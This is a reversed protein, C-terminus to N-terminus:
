LNANVANIAQQNLELGTRTQVDNIFYQFLDQSQASAAQEVLAAGLASVDQDNTDPPNVADLRVILAGDPIPLVQAEGPQMEFVAQLFQPTTGPVFSGRTIDREETVTLGLAALDAEPTIQPLLAEARATLRESLNQARWADEAADRVADLPQLEPAVVADLRMAVIGGDDLAFIEPFDEITVRGAEQQFAAYGAAADSADPTWDVQELRVETEQAVEELTAGGALLDDIGDRMDDIMRRARDGALEERLDDRADEFSTTRAALVGNVRFLAPGLDSPFPGVVDGTEAGFVAGGAEGLDSERVDGLDIDSLELGREAVIDELTKDGSEIAVKANEAATDDAFALREVLRREPQNFEEARAEYLEKLAAEDVDVQDLIMEPTLWAYTIRKREPLTFLDANEAHFATLEDEDPATMPAALDAETLKAWTFDRREALFAVMIDAYTQSSPVGSLVAAQLLGRALEGRLENEFDSESQGSRDLYFTYAERDFGGDLGQFAQIQLLQDRLNEDGVSVGLAAAEADLAKFAILKALALQDIGMERARDFPLPQGIQAEIARMEDQVARVYRSVTIEQDGVTGISRLNGSFNTVGFGGLGFILLAMLVWVVTKKTSGAAM